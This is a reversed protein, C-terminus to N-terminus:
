RMWVFNSKSKLSRPINTINGCFKGMLTSEGPPGDRIELFDNACNADLAVDFTLINLMVYTDNSLSITYNCEKNVDYSHPYNPSTLHSSKVSYTGGCGAENGCKSTVM